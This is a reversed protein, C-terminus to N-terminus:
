RKPFKLYDLRAWCAKSPSPKSREAFLGIGQHLEVRTALIIARGEKLWQCQVAFSQCSCSSAFALALGTGQQRCPRRHGRRRGCVLGFIYM